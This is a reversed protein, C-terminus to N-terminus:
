PNRGAQIEKIYYDTQDKAEPFLRGAERLVEVAKARQNMTLYGAALRFRLEAKQPENAVRRELIKVAEATNNTGHYATIIREDTLFRNEDLSAFLEGALKKDNSYLAAIGYLIQAEPYDPALEYAKKFIEFATKYEGTSLYAFGTEFLITQKRPSAENAKQLFPLANVHDGIRNRFSGMFLMSRADNPIKEIQEQLETLALTLYEQRVESSVNNAGFMNLKGVLQETAEGDAFTDYSFAKKFHELSTQADKSVNADIAKIIERNALIQKTNWSYVTTVVLVAAVVPMVVKMSRHSFMKTFLAPTEKGEVHRSHVFALLAMFYMYSVLNDFVFLNQFFYASTLAVLLAKDTVTFHKSKYVLWVLSAFLSLYGLFGLIGGAVLWDLAINHARDFWPEQGHMAPNYNKNFVLNFNEQGSGLIPNEKFGQIAMPWVFWRGQGRVV